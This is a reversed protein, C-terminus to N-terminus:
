RLSMEVSGIPEIVAKIRCSKKMPILGCLAGTTVIEDKKMGGLPQDRRNAFAIVPLLPDNQPHGGIADHTVVGDVELVCRLAALDLGRWNEIEGGAVYGRNAMLDAVFLEYPASKYDKMRSEVIEIGILVSKTAALIDERTYDRERAPLDEGLRLAIEIEIGTWGAVPHIPHSVGSAVITNAFLPAGLGQGDPRVGVKWGGPAVGLTKALAAHAIAAEELNRPVPLEAPFVLTDGRYADALSGALANMSETM